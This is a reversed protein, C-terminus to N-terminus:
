EGGKGLQDKKRDGWGMVLILVAGLGVAGFLLDATM